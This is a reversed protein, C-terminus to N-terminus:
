PLFIDKYKIINKKKQRAKRFLPYMRTNQLNKYNYKKRDM